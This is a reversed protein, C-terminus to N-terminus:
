RTVPFEIRIDGLQKYQVYQICQKETTTFLLYGGLFIFFGLFYFIFFGLFFYFFIFDKM